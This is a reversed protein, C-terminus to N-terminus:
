VFDWVTIENVAEIIEVALHAVSRRVILLARSV